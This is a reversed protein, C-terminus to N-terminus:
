EEKEPQDHITAVAEFQLNQHFRIPVSVSQHQREKGRPKEIERIEEQTVDLQRLIWGHARENFEVFVHVNDTKGHHVNKESYWNQGSGHRNAPVLLVDGEFVRKGNKDILGTFQGITTPDVELMNPMNNTTGWLIYVREWIKFLYGQTWEGNDLRKGRFLIERCM